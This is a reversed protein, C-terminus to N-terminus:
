VPPGTDGGGTQVGSHVHTALVKGNSTISGTTTLATSGLNITGGIGSVTGTFNVNGINVVGAPTLTINGSPDIVISAGNASIAVSGDSAFQVYRQPTGNLIGGCYIGDSMDWKRLSGPNAAGKNAKFSSIDQDAFIAFGIDGVVPDLIIANGGGQMRFYPLGRLVGHKTANGNGDLFSVLPQVDVTGAPAVGGGTVATVQVPTLTSIEAMIQRVLFAIANFQSGTDEPRQWGFGSNGTM